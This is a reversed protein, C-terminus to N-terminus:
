GFPELFAAVNDGIADVAYGGEQVIVTPVSLGAIRQAVSRYDSTAVEFTGLPDDVYTDVGLAVVVASVGADAIRQLAQEIAAQWAGFGTGLPLPLNLNWGEGAGEGRENAHGAFWPFEDIPDAHVSVTFVDAREYFIDQTGNGHHYDIDLVAVRPAATGSAHHASSDLLHQAAVASNNLYCYGGFQDATAHHGPPRTLAYASSGGEGVHRAATQAIAAADAAASWTGAVISCDAAFSHYGLQGSLNNPRVATVSRSPWNFAMAPVDDGFEERWREWASSLFDVYETTHVRRLLERNLPDPAAFEHGDRKLAAEIIDVRKPSEISPQLRGRSLEVAEHARHQNSAVVRM